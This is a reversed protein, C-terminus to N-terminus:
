YAASSEALYKLIASPKNLAKLTSKIKEKGEMGRNSSVRVGRGRSVMGGGGLGRM